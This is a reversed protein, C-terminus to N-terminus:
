QFTVDGEDNVNFQLLVTKEGVRRWPLENRHARRGM